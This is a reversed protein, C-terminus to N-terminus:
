EVFQFSFLADQDTHPILKQETCRMFPSVNTKIYDRMYELFQDRSTMNIIPIIDPRCIM